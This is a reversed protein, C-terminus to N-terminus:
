DQGFGIMNLCLKPHDSSEVIVFPTINPWSPGYTFREIDYEFVFLYDCSFSCPTSLDLKIYIRSLAIRSLSKTDRGTRVTDALQILM